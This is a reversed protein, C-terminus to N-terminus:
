NMRHAAWLIAQHVLKRMLPEQYRLVNHGRLTYVTRGTM